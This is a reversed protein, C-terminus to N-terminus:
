LKQPLEIKFSVGKLNNEAFINGKHEKVLTYCISLGLGIGKGPERTTYFPDFIRTLESEPIKKGNNSFSIIAKSNQSSSSITMIKEGQNILNLEFLANEIIHMIVQHIKDAYVPIPDKLQYDKKIIIDPSIKHNLFLLTNDIIDHINFFVLEPKGKYSFSMLAKVIEAARNLGSVVIHIAEDCQKQFELPTNSKFEEKINSIITIGGSIFNLPNNIEHAVGSTLTGLSAMKETQVLHKQTHKLEEITVELEETREKVILELNDKYDKLKVRLLYQLLYLSSIIASAILELRTSQLIEWYFSGFNKDTNLGFLFNTIVMIPILLVMYYVFVYFFWSLSILNAQKYKIIIKSYVIWSIFLAIFHMIFTSIYSGEAPTAIASILCIGLIVFPNKIYFISILLPIEAMNSIAGDVGPISFNILGFVYSLIGFFLMDFIHRALIKWNFRELVM